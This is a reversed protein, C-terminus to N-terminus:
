AYVLHKLDKILIERDDSNLFAGLELEKGSSSIFIRKPHGRHEPPKVFIKSWARQYEWKDEARYRGREIVVRDGDFTIVETLISKNLVYYLGWILAGLELGSFPLVMWLGQLLFFMSILFMIVGLSGAIMMNFRWTSSCNPKLVITGNGTESDIESNVM